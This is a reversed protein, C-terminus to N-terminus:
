AVLSLPPIVTYLRPPLPVPVRVKVNLLLMTELLEAPVVVCCFQWSNPDPATNADPPLLRAPGLPLPGSVLQSPMKTWGVSRLPTSGRSPVKCSLEGLGAGPAGPTSNVCAKGDFLGATSAQRLTPAFVGM